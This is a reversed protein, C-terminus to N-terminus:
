DAEVQRLISRYNILLVTGQFFWMLSIVLELFAAFYGLLRIGSDDVQNAILLAAGAFFLFGSVM